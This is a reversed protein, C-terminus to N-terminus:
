KWGDAAHTFLNLESDKCSLEGGYASFALISTVNKPFIIGKFQM